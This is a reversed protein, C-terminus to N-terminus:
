NLLEFIEILEINFNGDEKNILCHNNFCDIEHTEGNSLDESVKIAM